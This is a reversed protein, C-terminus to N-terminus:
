ERTGSEGRNTSVVPTGDRLRTLASIILSEGGDLGSLVEARVGATRGLQILRVRAKGDDDIFVATKENKRMVSSLPVIVTDTTDTISIEVTASMGAKIRSGWQNPFSVVVPFSGTVPDAGEGIATVRAAIKEEGLASPVYVIADADKQVLGIEREGLSVQVKFASNDVIRAVRDFASITNGTIITNERSTIVGSIPAKITTDNVTKLASEYQARAASMAGRARTLQAASAGGREALQETGRLELQASDLQDKARQLYLTALSDDVKLLKEGQTVRDGLDFYVAKITGQAESISFAEHIGAVVGSASLSSVLIGKTVTVTEVYETESMDPGAWATAGSVADPKYSVYFSVAAIALLLVIVTGITAKKM